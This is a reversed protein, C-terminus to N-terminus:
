FLFSLGVSGMFYSIDGFYTINMVKADFIISTTPIMLSLGIGSDICRTWCNEGDNQLSYVDDSAYNFASHLNSWAKIAVHQTPQVLLALGNKWTDNNEALVGTKSGFVYETAYGFYYGLGQIGLAGTFGLGSGYSMGYPEYIPDASYGYKVGISYCVPNTKGALKLGLNLMIPTEEMGAFCKMRLSFEACSAFSHVFGFEFPFGYFLRDTNWTPEIAFNFVTTAKPLVFATSTSGVSTGLSNIDVLQYVLSYDIITSIKKTIGDITVTAIYIGAPLLQGDNSRGNWHITQTWTSFHNLPRSFVVEGNITEIEFFGIDESDATVSIDFQCSGITGKYFPNFKQKSVSFSTIEFDAKEFEVPISNFSRRKVYIDTSFDKYGFARVKITHWGTEVEFRYDSMKIGDVYVVSGYPVDEIDVIGVNKKLEVYYRYSKGERVKIYFEETIYGTKKVSLLYIGSSLNNLSLPAQGQLINNLYVNANQVNSKILVNSKKEKLEYISDAKLYNIDRSVSDDEAFCIGFVLCLIFIGLINRKMYTM